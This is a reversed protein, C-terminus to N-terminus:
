RAIAEVEGAVSSAQVALPWQCAKSALELGTLLSLDDSASLSVTHTAENANYVGEGRVPWTAPILRVALSLQGCLYLM